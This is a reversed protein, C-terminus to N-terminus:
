WLSALIRLNEVVLICHACLYDLPSQKPQLTPKFIPSFLHVFTNPLTSSFAMFVISCGVIFWVLVFVVLVKVGFLLTNGVISILFSNFKGKLWIKKKRKKKKEKRTKQKKKRKTKIQEKKETKRNKEIKKMLSFVFMLLSFQM